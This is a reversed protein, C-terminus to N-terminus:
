EHDNPYERYIECQVRYHREILDDKEKRLDAIQKALDEKAHNCKEVKESDGYYRALALDRECTIKQVTLGEIKKDIFTFDM